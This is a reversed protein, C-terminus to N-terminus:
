GNKALASNIGSTVDATYTNMDASDITTGTVAPSVSTSIRSFTGSGNWAM